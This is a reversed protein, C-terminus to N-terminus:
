KDIVFEAKIADHDSFGNTSIVSASEVHFNKAFIHDIRLPIPSHITNGNGKGCEDWANVFGSDVLQSLAKSSAIDNMDGVVLVNEKNVDEIIASVMKKRVNSARRYNQYYVYLDSLSNVGDFPVYSGDERINNSSLHCCYLAVEKDVLQVYFRCAFAYPDIERAVRHNWRFPYKSYLCNTAGGWEYSSYPYIPSLLTYLSDGSEGYAESIFVLDANEQSILLSLENINNSYGSKPFDVNLSLCSIDADNQITKNICSGLICIFTLICCVKYKNM